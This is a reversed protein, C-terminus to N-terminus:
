VTRKYKVYSRRNRLILQHSVRKLAGDTEYLTELSELDKESFM